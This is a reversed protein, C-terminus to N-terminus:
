ALLEDLDVDDGASKITSMRRDAEERVSDDYKALYKDVLAALAEGKPMAVGKAVCAAKIREKAVDRMIKDIGSLRAAGVRTGITGALIAAQRTDLMEAVVEEPTKGEYDTPNERVDKALGAVSDQMSQTFGYQLLYALGKASIDMWNITRGQHTVMGTGTITHSETVADTTTAAVTTDNKKSKAM